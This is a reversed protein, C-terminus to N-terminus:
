IRRLRAQSWTQSTEIIDNWEWCLLKLLNSSLMQFEPGMACPLPVGLKGESGNAAEKVFSKHSMPM